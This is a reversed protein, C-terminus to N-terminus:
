HSSEQRSPQASRRSTESRSRLDTQKNFVAIYSSEELLINVVGLALHHEIQVTQRSGVLVVVFLRLTFTM